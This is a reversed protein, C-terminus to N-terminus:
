FNHNEMAINTMVLQYWKSHNGWSDVEIKKLPGRLIIALEQPTKTSLNWMIEGYWSQFLGPGWPPTINVVSGLHGLRWWTRHTKTTPTPHPQFKDVFVRVWWFNYWKIDVTLSIPQFYDGSIDHDENKGYFLPCNRMQIVGMKLGVWTYHQQKYGTM